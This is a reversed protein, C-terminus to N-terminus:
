TTGLVLTSPQTQSDKDSKFFSYSGSSELSTSQSLEVVPMNLKILRTSRYSANESSSLLLHITEPSAEEVENNVLNLQRKSDAVYMRTNKSTLVVSKDAFAEVPLYHHKSNEEIHLYSIAVLIREIEAIVSLGNEGRICEHGKQLLKKVLDEIPASSTRAVFSRIAQMAYVSMKSTERKLEFSIPFKQIYDTCIKILGYLMAQAYIQGGSNPAYQTSAVCKILLNYFLQWYALDKHTELLLQQLAELLQTQNSSEFTYAAKATQKGKFDSSENLLQYAAKFNKNALLKFFSTTIMTDDIAYAERETELLLKQHQITDIEELIALAQGTFEAQKNSKILGSLDSINSMFLICKEKNRLNFYLHAVNFKFADSKLIKTWLPHYHYTQTLLDLYQLKEEPTVAKDAAIILQQFAFRLIHKLSRRVETWNANYWPKSQNASDYIYQSYEQYQDRFQLLLADSEAYALLRFGVIAQWILHPPLRYLPNITNNNEHLFLNTQQIVQDYDKSEFFGKVSQYLHVVRAINAAEPQTKDYNLGDFTKDLLNKITELRAMININIVYQLAFDYVTAYHQSDPLLIYDSEDELETFCSLPEEIVIRDIRGQQNRINLYFISTDDEAEQSLCIISGNKIQEKILKDPKGSLIQFSSNNLYDSKKLNQYFSINTIAAILAKATAERQTTACTLNHLTNGGMIVAAGLGLWGLKGGILVAFAVTGLTELVSEVGNQTIYHTVDEIAAGKSELNKHHSWYSLEVVTSALNSLLLPSNAASFLGKKLSLITRIQQLATGTSVGRSFLNGYSLLNHRLTEMSALHQEPVFRELPLYQLAKSLLHWYIMAGNFYNEKNFPNFYQDFPNIDRSLQEWVQTLNRNAVPMIGTVWKAHALQAALPLANPVLIQATNIVEIGVLIGSRLKSPQWGSIQRVLIAHLPKTFISFVQGQHAFDFDNELDKLKLSSDMESLRRITEAAERNLGNQSQKGAIDIIAKVALTKGMSNVTLAHPEADTDDILANFFRQYENQWFAEDQGANERAKNIVAILKDSLETQRPDKQKLTALDDTAQKSNGANVANFINQIIWTHLSALVIEDKSNPKDTNISGLHELLDPNLKGKFLELEKISDQYVGIKGTKDPAAQLYEQCRTTAKTLEGAMINSFIDSLIVNSVIAQELIDDVGQADQSKEYSNKLTLLCYDVDHYHPKLTEMKSILANALSEQEPMAIKFEELLKQAQDFQGQAAQSFVQNLTFQEAIILELTDTEKRAEENIANIIAIRNIWFTAKEQLFPKLQELKDAYQESLETYEPLFVRLEQMLRNAEDFEGHAAQSVASNIVHHSSIAKFLISEEESLSKKGQHLDNLENLWFSTPKDSHGSLQLLLTSLGALKLDVAKNGENFQSVQNKLNTALNKLADIRADWQKSTVYKSSKKSHTDRNSKRNEWFHLTFSIKQILGNLDKVPDDGAGIIQNIHNLEQNILNIERMTYKDFKGHGNGFGLESLTGPLFYHLNFTEKLLDQAEALKGNASLQLVKNVILQRLGKIKAVDQETYTKNGILKKAIEIIEEATKSQNATIFNKQEKALELTEKVQSLENLSNQYDLAVAELANRVKNNKQKRAYRAREEQKHIKSSITTILNQSEKILATFNINNEGQLKESFHSLEKSLLQADKETRKLSAKLKHEIHKIHRKYFFQATLMVGAIVAGVGAASGLASWFGPGFNASVSIFFGSQSASFSIVGNGSLTAIIGIGGGVPGISINTIFPENTKAVRSPLHDSNSGQRPQYEPKVVSAPTDVTLEVSPQTIDPNVQNLDQLFLHFDPSVVGNNRDLNLLLLNNTHQFLTITDGGLEKTILNYSLKPPLQIDCAKTDVNNFIDSLGQNTRPDHQNFLTDIDKALTIIKHEGDADADQSHSTFLSLPDSLTEGVSRFLDVTAKKADYLKEFPMFSTKAVQAANECFSRSASGGRDFDDLLFKSADPSLEYSDMITILFDRDNRFSEPAIHRVENALNSIFNVPLVVSAAVGVSTAGALLAFAGYDITFDTAVAAARALAAHQPHNETEENFRSYLDYAMIPPAAIKGLMNGIGKYNPRQYAPLRRGESIGPRWPITSMEEAATFTNRPLPREYPIGLKPGLSHPTSSYNLNVKIGYDTLRPNIDWIKVPQYLPQAVYNVSVIKQKIWAQTEPQKYESWTFSKIKNTDYSSLFVQNCQGPWGCQPAADGCAIITGPPIEYVLVGKNAPHWNPKLKIEYNDYLTPHMALDLSQQLPSQPPTTCWYKGPLGTRFVLLPDKLQTVQITGGMFSNLQYSKMNGVFCELDGVYGCEAIKGIVCNYTLCPASAHPPTGDYYFETATKDPRM